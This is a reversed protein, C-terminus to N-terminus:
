PKYGKLIEFELPKNNSGDLQFTFVSCKCSGNGQRENQFLVTGIFISYTRFVNNQVM